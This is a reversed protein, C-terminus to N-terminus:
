VISPPTRALISIRCHRRECEAENVTISSVSAGLFGAEWPLQARQYIQGPLATDLSEITKFGISVEAYIIPNLVLAAHEACEALAQSSWAAWKSDNTAIDLLINSDVLVGQCNALRAAL